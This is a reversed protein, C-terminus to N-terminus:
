DPCPGLLWIMLWFYLAIGILLCIAKWTEPKPMRSM